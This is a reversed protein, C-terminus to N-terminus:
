KDFLFYFSLNEAIAFNQLCLQSLFLHCSSIGVENKVRRDELFGEISVERNFGVHIVFDLAGDGSFSEHMKSM